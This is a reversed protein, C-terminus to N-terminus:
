KKMEEYIEIDLTLLDRIKKLLFKIETKSSSENPKMELKNMLEVYHSIIQNKVAILKCQDDIFKLLFDTKKKLDM